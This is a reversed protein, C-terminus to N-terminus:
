NHGSDNKKDELIQLFISPLALLYDMTKVRGNIDGIHMLVSATSPNTEEADNVVSAGEDRFNKKWTGLERKIDKWLFSNIFDHIQNETARVVVEKDEM